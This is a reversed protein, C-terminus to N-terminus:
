YMTEGDKGSCSDMHTSLKFCVSTRPSANARLGLVSSATEPGRVGVTGEETPQVKTGWQQEQNEKQGTFAAKQRSLRSQGPGRAGWM